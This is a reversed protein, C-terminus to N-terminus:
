ESVPSSVAVFISQAMPTGDLTLGIPVADGSIGDPVVVALKYVGVSGTSLGASAVIANV